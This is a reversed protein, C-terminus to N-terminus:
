VMGGSDAGAPGECPPACHSHTFHASPSHDLASFGFLKENSRLL